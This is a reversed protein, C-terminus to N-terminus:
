GLPNFGGYQGQHFVLAAGGRHTARLVEGVIIMHDGGDHTAHQRCEFRAVAQDLVPVGEANRSFALGAFGAGDRAFRDLLGFDDRSLVHIAYHTAAIYHGFRRSSKAPSWLVLAPDLSVAAFSNAAFGMPGDTSEITILTVGTAFCGLADRLARQTDPGPIIEVPHMQGGDDMM